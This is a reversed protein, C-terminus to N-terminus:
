YARSGCNSSSRTLLAFCVHGVYFCDAVPMALMPNVIIEFTKVGIVASVCNGVIVAWTQAIPKSVLCICCPVQGWLSAM